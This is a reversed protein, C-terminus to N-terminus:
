ATPADVEAVKLGQPREMPRLIVVLVIQDAMWGVGIDHNVVQRFQQTQALVKSTEVLALGALSAM